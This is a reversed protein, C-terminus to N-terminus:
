DRKVNNDCAKGYNLAKEITWGYRLRKYVTNLKLNLIECWETICHTIGNITIIRNNRKNRQQTSLNVWRCNSPSYGIDNDIRDITLNDKYGNNMSWDYFSQFSDLWEDCVKIGRGGYHQYEKNNKNYCRSRMNYYTNYLRTNSLNHKSIIQSFKEKQICGCSKTHKSTVHYLQTKFLNGCDCKCLVIRQKTKNPTLHPKLEKIITLNGFKQGIINKLKMYEGGKV